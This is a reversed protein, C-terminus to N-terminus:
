GDATIGGIRFMVSGPGVTLVGSAAAPQVVAAGVLALIVVIRVQVGWPRVRSYGMPGGGVVGGSHRALYPPLCPNTDACGLAALLL